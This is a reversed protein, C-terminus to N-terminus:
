ERDGGNLERVARLLEEDTFPASKMVYITDEGPELGARYGHFVPQYTERGFLGLRQGLQQLDQASMARGNAASNFCEAVFHRSNENSAVLQLITTAMADLLQKGAKSELGAVLASTKIIQAPTLAPREAADNAPVMAIKLTSTPIMPPIKPGAAPIFGRNALSEEIALVATQLTEKFFNESPSPNAFMGSLTTRARELREKNLHETAKTM